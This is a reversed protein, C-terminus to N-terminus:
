GFGVFGMLRKQLIIKEKQFTLKGVIKRYQGPPLKYYKKFSRTFSEQTEFRFYSAIDIIKHNTFLLMNASRAIRRYRVYESVTVGVEQLFIRHFHYKSFVAFQAIHQLSLKEHLNAEIYEITKQVISSYRVEPVEKISLIASEIM